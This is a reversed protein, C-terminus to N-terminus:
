EKEREKACILLGWWEGHEADRTSGEHGQRDLEKGKGEQGTGRSEEFALHVAHFSALVSYITIDTTGDVQREQADGDGVLLDINVGSRCQRPARPQDGADTDAGLCTDKGWSGEGGDVGLDGGVLTHECGDQVSDATQGTRDGLDSRVSQRQYTLIKGWGNKRTDQM